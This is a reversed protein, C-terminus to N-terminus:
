AIWDSAIIAVAGRRRFGAPTAIQPAREASM